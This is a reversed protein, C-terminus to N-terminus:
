LVYRVVDVYNRLSKGNWDVRPLYNERERQGSQNKENLKSCFSCPRDTPSSRRLKTSTQVQQPWQQNMTLLPEPTSHLNLPSHQFYTAKEGYQTEPKTETQNRNPISLQDPSTKEQIKNWNNRFEYLGAITNKNTLSIRLRFWIKVLCKKIM